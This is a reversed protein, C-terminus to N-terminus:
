GRLTDIVRRAEYHLLGGIFVWIGIGALSGEWSVATQGQMLAVLPVLAGTGFCVTSVRDFANAVLKAQENQVLNSM